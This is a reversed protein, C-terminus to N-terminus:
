RLREISSEIDLLQQTSLIKITLTIYVENHDPKSKLRINIIEVRPEDRKIANEIDSAMNAATIDDLNEFLYSHLNAGFEPDFLKEGHNTRLINLISQRIAQNNKMVAVDFEINPNAIFAFDLDSYAGRANVIYSTDTIAM